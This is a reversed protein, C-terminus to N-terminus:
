ILLPKYKIKRQQCKETGFWENDDAKSKFWVFPKMVSM